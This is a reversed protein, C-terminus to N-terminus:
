SELGGHSNAIDNFLWGDASQLQSGSCCCRTGPKDGWGAVSWQNNM